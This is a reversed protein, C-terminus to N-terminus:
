TRECCVGGVTYLSGLGKFGVGATMGKKNVFRNLGCCIQSDKWLNPNYAKLNFNTTSDTTAGDTM